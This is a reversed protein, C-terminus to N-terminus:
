EDGACVCKEKVIFDTGSLEGELRCHRNGGVETPGIRGEERSAM